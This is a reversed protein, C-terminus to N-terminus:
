GLKDLLFVLVMIVLIGGSMQIRKFWLDSM